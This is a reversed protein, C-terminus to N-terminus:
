YLCCNTLCFDLYSHLRLLISCLLSQAYVTAGCTQLPATLRAAGELRETCPAWDHLLRRESYTAAPLSTSILSLCCFNIFVTLVLFAELLALVSTLKSVSVHVLPSALISYLSALFQLLQNIRLIGCHLINCSLFILLFPILGDMLCVM